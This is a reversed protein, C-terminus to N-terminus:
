HSLILKGVWYTLWRNPLQVRQQVELIKIVQGLDAPDIVLYGALTTTARPVKVSSVYLGRVLLFSRPPVGAFDSQENNYTTFAPYQQCPIGADDAPQGPVPHTTLAVYLDASCNPTFLTAM